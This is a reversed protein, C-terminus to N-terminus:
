GMEHDYFRSGTVTGVTNLNGGQYVQFPSLLYPQESSEYTMDIDDATVIFRLENNSIV